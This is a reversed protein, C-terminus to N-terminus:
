GVIGCGTRWGNGQHGAGANRCVEWGEGVEIRAKSVGAGKGDAHLGAGENERVQGGGAGLRVVGGEKTLIGSGQNEVVSGSALYVTSGDDECCVGNGGNGRSVVEGASAYLRAGSAAVLGDAGNGVAAFGDAQTTGTAQDVAVGDVVNAEARGGAGIVLM